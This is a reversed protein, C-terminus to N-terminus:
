VKGLLTVPLPDCNKILQQVGYDTINKDVFTHCLIKLHTLCKLRSLQELSKDSIAAKTDIEISVLQPLYKDISDICNDSLQVLTLNLHKLQSLHRLDRISNNYNAPVEKNISVFAWEKIELTTLAKFTSFLSIVNNNEPFKGSFKFSLQNLQPCDKALQKLGDISKVVTDNDVNITFTM